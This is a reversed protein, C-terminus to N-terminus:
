AVLGDDYARPVLVCERRKMRQFLHLPAGNVTWLSQSEIDVFPMDKPLVQDLYTLLYAKCVTLVGLKMEPMIDRASAISQKMREVFGIDARMYTRQKATGVWHMGWHRKMLEFANQYKPWERDIIAQSEPYPDEYAGETIQFLLGELDPYASAIFEIRKRNIESVVPDTFSTM